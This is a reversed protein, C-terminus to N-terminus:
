AEGEDDYDVWFDPPKAQGLDLMRGDVTFCECSWDGNEFEVPQRCATCKMNLSAREVPGYDIFMSAFQKVHEADQAALEPSVKRAEYEQRDVFTDDSM